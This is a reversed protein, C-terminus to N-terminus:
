FWLLLRQKENLITDLYIQLEQFQRMLPVVDLFKEVRKRGAEFLESESKFSRKTKSKRSCCCFSRFFFFIPNFEFEKNRRAQTVINDIDETALHDHSALRIDLNRLSKHEIENTEIAQRKQKHM